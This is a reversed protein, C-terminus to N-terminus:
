LLTIFVKSLLHTKNNAKFASLSNANRIVSLLANCLLPGPVVIHMAADLRHIGVSM